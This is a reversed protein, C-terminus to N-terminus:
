IIIYGKSINKRAKHYSMFRGTPALISGNWELIQENPFQFHVIRTRIDILAYCSHLWDLCLIVDFDVMELEVLDASTVKQSATDHCNKYVWRAIVPDGLTTSVSLPESHAELSATVQVAKYPTVFSLWTHQKEVYHTCGYTLLM